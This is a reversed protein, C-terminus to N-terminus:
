IRELIDGILPDRVIDARTFNYCSIADLGTLRRSIDLIPSDFASYRDSQDVDACFVIRGNKGIRTLICKLEAYTCNQAEDVILIGDAITRGRLYGIGENEITTNHEALSRQLTGWSDRAAVMNRAVDKFPAMWPGLKQWLEGPLFGLRDVNDIEVNPRTLHIYKTEKKFAPNLAWKVACGLATFTKATGAPGFLFMVRSQRFLEIAARQGDTRPVIDTICASDPLM